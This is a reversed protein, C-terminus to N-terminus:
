LQFIKKLEQDNGKYKGEFFSVYEKVGALECVIAIELECPYPYVWVSQQVQGLGLGKLLYRFSDRKKREEEPIDFTILRWSGDWKKQKPITIQTQSFKTLYNKGEATIVVGVKPGKKILGRESLRKIEQRYRNPKLIKGIPGLAYYLQEELDESLPETYIKAWDALRELIIISIPKKKKTKKM